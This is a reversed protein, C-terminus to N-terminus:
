WNAGPHTRQLYQMEAIMFGLYESHRGDKGGAAM